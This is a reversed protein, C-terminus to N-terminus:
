GHLCKGGTGPPKKEGKMGVHIKKLVWSNKENATPRASHCRKLCIAMWFALHEFVSNDSDAIVQRCNFSILM